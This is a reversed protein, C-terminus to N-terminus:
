CVFTGSVGDAAGTQSDSSIRTQGKPHTKGDRRRAWLGARKASDRELGHHHLQLHLTFKTPSRSRPANISCM